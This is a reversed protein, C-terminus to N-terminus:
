IDRLRETSLLKQHWGDETIELTKRDGRGLTERFGSLLSKNSVYCKSNFRGFDRM